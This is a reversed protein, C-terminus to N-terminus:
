SSSTAGDYGVERKRRESAAKRRLQRRRVRGRRQWESEAEHYEQKLVVFHCAVFFPFLFLCPSFYRGHSFSHTLLLFPCCMKRWKKRGFVIVVDSRERPCCFIVKINKETCSKKNRKEETRGRRWHRGEEEKEAGRGEKQKLDFAGLATHGIGELSKHRYEWQRAAAAAAASCLKSTRDSDRRKQRSKTTRKRQQHSVNQHFNPLFRVLLTYIIAPRMSRTM